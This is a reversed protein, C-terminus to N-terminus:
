KMGYMAKKIGKNEAYRNAFNLISSLCVSENMPKGVGAFAKNKM